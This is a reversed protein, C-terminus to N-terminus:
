DWRRGCEALRGCGLLERRVEGDAAVVLDLGGADLQKGRRKARGLLLGHGSSGAACCGAAWRWASRGRCVPSLRRRWQGVEGKAAPVGESGPRIM